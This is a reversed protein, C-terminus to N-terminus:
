PEIADCLEELWKSAERGESRKSPLVAVAVPIRSVDRCPSCSSKFSRAPKPNDRLATPRRLSNNLSASIAPTTACSLPGSPAPHRSTIDAYNAGIMGPMNLAISTNMNTGDGSTANLFNARLTIPAGCTLM